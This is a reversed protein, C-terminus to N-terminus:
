RKLGLQRWLFGLDAVERKQAAAQKREGREYSELLAVVQGKDRGAVGLAACM